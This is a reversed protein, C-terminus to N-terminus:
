YPCWPVQANYQHSDIYMATTGNLMGASEQPLFVNIPRTINLPQEDWTASEGPSPWIQPGTYSWERDNVKITLRKEAPFVEVSEYMPNGDFPDLGDFVPMEIQLFSGLPPTIYAQWRSGTFLPSWMAMFSFFKNVTASWYQTMGLFHEILYAGSGPPKVGSFGVSRTWASVGLYTAQTWNPHLRAGGACIKIAGSCAVENEFRIDPQVRYSNSATPSVPAGVTVPTSDSPGGWGTPRMFGGQKATDSTAEIVPMGLARPIVLGQSDQSISATDPMYIHPFYMAGECVDQLPEEGADGIRDAVKKIRTESAVRGGQAMRNARIGTRGHRPQQPPRSM